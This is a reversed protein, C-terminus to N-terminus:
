GAYAWRRRDRWVKHFAEAYQDVLGSTQAILPCSQSFLVISSDLLDSTIPYKRVDYNESVRGANCRQLSDANLSSFLSYGVLPTTEWQVVELGEAQLARKARDRLEKKSISLGAATPELRVRYKHYGSERDSPEEPPFVGPLEALAASLRRANTRCEGVRASLKKLQAEALAALMENGRFMGGVVAFDAENRDDLPREPDWYVDASDTKRGFRRIQNATEALALDCTVLVGGEGAGLNKSSQLSFAAADGLAGVPRGKYTAGHAQAADEIVRLNRRVAIETLEDMDAPTGHIHVPVIAKTRSSIAAEVKRVDITWHQKAVDVFIPVAGLQLVALATAIYSYAPVIVEDDARVGAAALALQLASTGSPTLLAVDAGCFAAFRKEFSRSAPADAGSLVGRRLVALVAEEEEKEIMPWRRHAGLPLM